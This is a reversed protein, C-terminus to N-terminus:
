IYVSACVWVGCVCARVCVCVCSVLRERCHRCRCSTPECLSLECSQLSLVVLPLRPLLSPPMSPNGHQWDSPHPLSHVATSSSPNPVSLLTTFHTTTSSYLIRDSVGTAHQTM